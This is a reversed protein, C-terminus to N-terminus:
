LEFRFLALDRVIVKQRNDKMIQLVIVTMKDNFTELLLIGLALCFISFDTEVIDLGYRQVSLSKEEELDAVQFEDIRKM